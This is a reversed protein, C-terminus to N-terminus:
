RAEIGASRRRRFALAIGVLISITALLPMLVGALTIAKLVEDKTVDRRAQATKAAGPAQVKM